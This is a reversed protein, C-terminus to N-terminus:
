EGWIDWGDDYWEAQRYKWFESQDIVLGQEDIYKGNREIIWEEEGFYRHTVKHNDKMAQIAQEKTM